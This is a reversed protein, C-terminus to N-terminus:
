QNLLSLDKVPPPPPLSELFYYIATADAESLVNVAYPPMENSPNRVQQLFAPFPLGLRAIRPGSSRGGQGVTGHCEGCGDAQFLQNGRYFDSTLITSVVRSNAATSPNPPGSDQADAVGGALVLLVAIAVLRGTM